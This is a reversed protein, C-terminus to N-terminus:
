KRDNNEANKDLLYTLFHHLSPNKLLQRAIDAADTLDGKEQSKECISKVEIFALAVAGVFTFVPIFLLDWGVSYRLYAMGTLIMADIITLAMLCNFYRAIKDVTRRLARSTRPINARRAKRLASWLDAAIALLVGAYLAVVLALIIMVTKIEM